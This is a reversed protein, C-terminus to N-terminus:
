FKKVIDENIYVINDLNQDNIDTPGEFEIMGHENYITFHEVTRLQKENMM